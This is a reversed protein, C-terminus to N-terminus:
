EFAGNKRLVDAVEYHKKEIAMQLPTVDSKGRANVEAGSKLLLIAAERHGHAAAEHLPTMNDDDTCKVDAGGNILLNVIEIKGEAAAAHLATGGNYSKENPNAKNALLLKVIEIHSGVTAGYLPTVDMVGKTSIYDPNEKLLITCTRIDGTNAAYQFASLNDQKNIANPSPDQTIKSISDLEKIAEQNGAKASEKLWKIALEKNATTGAGNLYSTGLFYQAYIQGQEAAKQFYEFAKTSNKSIGQGNVYCGAVAFQADPNGHDAALSLWKFSEYYDIDIGEGMRCIAGLVYAADFNDQKASKRLWKIAESDNKETGLGQHLKLGLHYQAIANGKVAAIMFWKVAEQDDKKIGNGADYAMGLSTAALENGHTASKRFWKVAEEHDHKEDAMLYYGTYFEATPDGLRAARLCDEYSDKDFTVSTNQNEEVAESVLTQKKIDTDESGKRHGNLFSKIQNICSIFSAAIFSKTSEDGRSPSIVSLQSAKEPDPALEKCMRQFSVLIMERSEAHTIGDIRGFAGMVNAGQLGEELNRNAREIQQESTGTIKTAVTIQKEVEEPIREPRNDAPTYDVIRGQLNIFGHGYKSWVKAYGDKYEGKYLWKRYDKQAADETFSSNNSNIRLFNIRDDIQIGGGHKIISSALILAFVLLSATLWPSRFVKPIGKGLSDILEGGKQMQRKLSIIYEILDKFHKRAEESNLGKEGLVILNDRYKGKLQEEQIKLQAKLALRRVQETSGLTAMEPLGKDNSEDIEKRLKELEAYLEPEQQQITNGRFCKEGLEQLARKLDISELKKLKAQLGAIKGSKSLTDAASVAADKGKRRLNRLKEKLEASQESNRINGIIVGAREKLDNLKNLIRRVRNPRTQEVEPDVVRLSRPKTIKISENCVPCPMEHGIHEEEAELKQGCSTCFIKFAM